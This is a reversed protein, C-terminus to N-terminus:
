VQNVASYVTAVGLPAQLWKDIFKNFLRQFEKTQM